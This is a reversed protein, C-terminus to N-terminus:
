SSRFNVKKSITLRNNRVQGFTSRCFPCKIQLRKPPAPHILNDIKDLLAHYASCEAIFCKELTWQIDYDFYDARKTHAHRLLRNRLCTDSRGVYIPEKERFRYLSYTGIYDVPILARVLWPSLRYLRRQPHEFM